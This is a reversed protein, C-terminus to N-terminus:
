KKTDGMQTPMCKTGRTRKEKKKIINIHAGSM